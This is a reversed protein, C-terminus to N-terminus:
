IARAECYWLRCLFYHTRLHRFIGSSTDRLIAILSRNSNSSNRRYRYSRIADEPFGWSPDFSLDSRDPYDSWSSGQGWFLSNSRFCSFMFGSDTHASNSRHTNAYLFYLSIFITKERWRLITTDKTIDFFMYVKLPFWSWISESDISFRSFVSLFFRFIVGSFSSIKKEGVISCKCSGNRKGSISFATFRIRSARSLCSRM